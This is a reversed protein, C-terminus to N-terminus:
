LLGASDNVEEVNIWIVRDVLFEKLMLEGAPNFGYAAFCPMIKTKKELWRRLSVIHKANQERNLNLFEHLSEETITKINM